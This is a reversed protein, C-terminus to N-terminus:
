SVKLIARIERKIRFKISVFICIIFLVLRILIYFLIENKNDKFIMELCNFIFFLWYRGEIIM